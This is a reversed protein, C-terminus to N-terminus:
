TPSIMRQSQRFLGTVRYLTVAVQYVSCGALETGPCPEVRSSFPEMWYRPYSGLARRVTKPTLHIQATGRAIVSPNVLRKLVTLGNRIKYGLQWEVNQLHYVM